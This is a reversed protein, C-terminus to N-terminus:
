PLQTLHSRTSERDELMQSFISIRSCRGTDLRMRWSANLSAVGAQCKHQNRRPARRWGAHLRRPFPVDRNPSSSAGGRPLACAYKFSVRQPVRMSARVRFWTHCPLLPASTVSSYTPFGSWRLPRPSLHVASISWAHVSVCMSEHLVTHLLPNGHSKRAGCCGLIIAGEWFLWSRRLFYSEMNTPDLYFFFFLFFSKSYVLDREFGCAVMHSWYNDKNSVSASLSLPLSLSLSLSFFFSLSLSLSVSHSLFLSLARSPPSLASSKLEGSRWLSRTRPLLREALCDAASPSASLSFFPSSAWVSHFYWSFWM